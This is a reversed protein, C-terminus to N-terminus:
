HSEAASASPIYDSRSSCSAGDSQRCSRECLTIDTTKCAAVDAYCVSPFNVRLQIHRLFFRVLFDTFNEDYITSHDKIIERAASILLYPFNPSYTKSGSERTLKLDGGYYYEHTSESESRLLYGASGKSHGVSQIDETMSEFLLEYQNVFETAQEADMESIDPLGQCGCDSEDNGRFKKDLKPDSLSLDHTRYRDLHGVTTVITGLQGSHSDESSTREFMTGIWRGLPFAIGTAYDTRSTVVLMVPRQTKPFCRNVAVDYLPEFRSGEFAPNVLVVLDGISKAVEFRIRGRSRAMKAARDILLNSLASYVVQGGFSHGTIVLQTKDNERSPNKFDRFEDLQSILHTVGGSGVRRAASKREWFTLHELVPVSVSRGRWGVYVGVVKRKPTNRRQAAITELVDFRKLLRQFCVVNSDCAKANHQWGHAYLIILYETDDNSGNGGLLRMLSELQKRDWFWGQDDYEIFATFYDYPEGNFRYHRHIVAHNACNDPSSDDNSQCIVDNIQHTLPDEAVTMKRYQQLGECGFLVALIIIVGGIKFM